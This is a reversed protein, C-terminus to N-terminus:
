TFARTLAADLREEAYELTAKASRSGDVDGGAVCARWSRYANRVARALDAAELLVDVSAEAREARDLAAVLAANIDRMTATRLDLTAALQKNEELLRMREAHNADDADRLKVFQKQQFEAAARLRANEADLAAIREGAEQLQGLDTLMQMADARIRALLAPVATRTWVAYDLAESVDRPTKSALQELADIDDGGPKPKAQERIWAVAAATNRKAQESEEHCAECVAGVRQSGEVARTAPREECVDCPGM